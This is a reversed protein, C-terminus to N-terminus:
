GELLMDEDEEGKGTAQKRAQKAARRGEKAAEEALGHKGGQGARKALLEAFRSKAEELSRAQEQAMALIEKQMQQLEPDEGLYQETSADVQAEKGLCKNCDELVQRVKQEAKELTEKVQQQVKKAAQLEEQLKQVDKDARDMAAEAKEKAVVAQQFSKRVQAPDKSEQDTPQKSPQPVLSGVAAKGAEGLLKGALEQVQEWKKVAEEDWVHDQTARPTSMKEEAVEVGELM